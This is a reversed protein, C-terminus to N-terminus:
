LAPRRVQTAAFIETFLSLRAARPGTLTSSVGALLHFLGLMINQEDAVLRVQGQQDRDVHTPQWSGPSVSGWRSRALM